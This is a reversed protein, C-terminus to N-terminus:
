NRSPSPTPASTVTGNVDSPSADWVQVTSDSSGTIIRRGDPSFVVGRLRGGRGDLVIAQQGTAADWVRVTGDWATSAIRSGDPSFAVGTAFATHGLLKLELSGSGADWVRIVRDHGASAIRHGDLSFSVDRISSSNGALRRLERGDRADWVRVDGDNGASALYAGDRSFAVAQVAGTLGDLRHLERGATTDWLRVTADHGASAVRRGDPSFDVRNVTSTHGRLIGVERGDRADWLRVTKDGSASAIRSGDPSFAVGHVTHEHGRLVLPERDGKADWVLITKDRGASAIQRGDPSIAVDNVADTHGGRLLRAERGQTIDWLRITQDVGGSLVREGDPSFAVCRVADTHGTLKLLERSTAIDWVRATGDESASALHRADRSVALDTVLGKHGSFSDLCRGTATDWVRIVQDEGASALRRGDPVFAIGHVRRHHGLLIRLGRGTAADWLRVEGAEDATALRAGDPSYAVCSPKAGHGSLVLPERGGSLDWLRVTRDEGCSVIRRGDPAFALRFVIGDHGSLSGIDRGSEADWLTITGGDGASALRRGDPAFAICWVGPSRAHFTHLVQGKAADWLRVTRDVGGASAFRRGDPSYAVSHVIAGHGTLVVVPCPVLRRLYYWEWARLDPPCAALHQEMGEPNNVQWEHQAQAICHFYLKSELDRRAKEEADRLIRERHAMHGFHVSAVTSGVVTATLLIAVAASLAALAPQRRCWRRLQGIVGIPRARIPQCALFRRLDDALEAASGYRRKPEKELSKLCIVELDRPVTPRLRRPPLPEESIVLRLTGLDSEGRFPPRDTLLEYLLVGLAYVDTPPGLHESRGEAQEPAMYAPTGLAAGSRTGGSPGDILRALGFDTLRPTYDRDLRGGSPPAGPRPVLLINSPKIDRHLIGARHAHHVAGALAAVLAAAARPPAPRDRGGLWDALNPGECYASALYCVPGFEGAEFVPIINPHDLAAAALGERVFRRRTAPDALAEPRPVKLAIKRALLPDEALFVVGGGGGGLKRILRFRGIHRPGQALPDSWSAGGAPPEPHLSASRPLVQEIVRLCSRADRLEAAFEPLVHAADSAPPDLGAALDEDYSALLEAFQRELPDGEESPIM